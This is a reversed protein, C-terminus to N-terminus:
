VTEGWLERVRACIQEATELKIGEILAKEEDHHLEATERAEKWNGPIKELRNIFFHQVAAEDDPYTRCAVELTTRFLTFINARIKEFNAEDKRSDAKLDSERQGSLFIQNDFYAQLQSLRNTM